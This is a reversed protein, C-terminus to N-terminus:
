ESFSNLSLTSTGMFIKKKPGSHNKDGIHLGWLKRGEYTTALEILESYDSYQEATAALWEELEPYDLYEDLSFTEGKSSRRHKELRQDTILRGADNIIISTKSAHSMLEPEILKAEDESIMFDVSM